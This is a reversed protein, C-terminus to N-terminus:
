KKLAVLLEQAQDVEPFDAGGKLLGELTGIASASDGLAAAIMARHYILSPNDPSQRLAREVTREAQRYNKNAYEVVALTDLVDASDPALSAAQRAYDLAKAPDEERINWALNNLATVNDPTFQLIKEYEDAAEEVEQASQLRDAIMMRVTVDEPNKDLWSRYLQLTQERNGATEKHSGLALVTATGPALKYAQEAFKVAAATDGSRSASAARLLLVDPNDPALAELKELQQGFEETRGTALALRALSVRSPLYNEDIELARRLEREAQETDGTGAAAMAM